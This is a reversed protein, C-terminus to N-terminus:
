RDYKANKIDSESLGSSHFLDAFLIPSPFNFRTQTNAKGIAGKKLHALGQLVGSAVFSIELDKSHIVSMVNNWEVLVTEIRKDDYTICSSDFFTLESIEVYSIRSMCNRRGGISIGILLNHDGGGFREFGDKWILM